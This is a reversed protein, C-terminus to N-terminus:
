IKVNYFYHATKNERGIYNVIFFDKKYEIIADEVKGIEEIISQLLKGGVSTTPRRRTNNWRPFKKAAEIFRKYTKYITDM